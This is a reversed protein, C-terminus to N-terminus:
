HHLLCLVRMPSVSAPSSSVVLPLFDMEAFRNVWFTVAVLFWFLLSPSSSKKRVPPAYEIGLKSEIAQLRTDTSISWKYFGNFVYICIIGFVVLGASLEKGALWHRATDVTYVVIEVFLWAYFIIQDM